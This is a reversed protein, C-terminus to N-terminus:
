LVDACAIAVAEVFAEADVPALGALAVLERAYARAFAAAGPHSPLTLTGRFGPDPM